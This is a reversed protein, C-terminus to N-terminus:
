SLRLQVSLVNDKLLRFFDIRAELLLVTKSDPSVRFGGTAVISIADSALPTSTGFIEVSANLVSIRLGDYQGAPAQISSIASPPESAGTSGLSVTSTRDAIKIWSDNRELPVGAVHLSLDKFEVQIKGPFDFTSSFVRVSISGQAVSPLIMLLVVLGLLFFGLSKALVKRM